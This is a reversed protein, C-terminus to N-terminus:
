TCRVQKKMGIFISTAPTSLLDKQKPNFVGSSEPYPRCDPRWAYLLYKKM